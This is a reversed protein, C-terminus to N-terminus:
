YTLWPANFCACRPVTLHSTGNASRLLAHRRMRGPGPLHRFDVVEHALRGLSETAAIERSGCRAGLLREPERRLQRLCQMKQPQTEQLVALRLTRQGQQLLRRRALGAVCLEHM